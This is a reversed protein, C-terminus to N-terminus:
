WNKWLINMTCFDCLMTFFLCNQNKLCIQGFLTNGTWFLAFWCKWRILMNPNSQCLNTKSSWIQRIPGFKGLFPLRTWFLDFSYWLRIWFIQILTPVLNWISNVIRIKPGFIHLFPIKPGSSFFPVDGDFEAM